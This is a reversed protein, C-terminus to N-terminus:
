FYDNKKLYYATLLCIILTLLQLWWFSFPMNVGPLPVNMGYMGGIITPITLIITMSTLVKMIINLNNSIVSSVMEGYNDLIKTQIMTMTEAQQNEILVDTLLDDIKKQKFHENSDAM